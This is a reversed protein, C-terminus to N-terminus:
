MASGICHNAPLFQFSIVGYEPTNLKVVLGYKVPILYNQMHRYKPQKNHRVAIYPLISASEETCYIQKNFKCDELGRM